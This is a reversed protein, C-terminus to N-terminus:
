LVSHFGEAVDELPGICEVQDDVEGHSGVQSVEDDNLLSDIGLAESVVNVGEPAAVDAGLAEHDFDSKHNQEEGCNEDGV